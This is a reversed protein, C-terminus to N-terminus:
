DDFQATHAANAAQLTTVQLAAAASAVPDHYGRQQAGGREPSRVYAYRLKTPQESAFKRIAKEFVPLTMKLSPAYLKAWAVLNHYLEITPVFRGANFSDPIHPSAYSAPDGSTMEAFWSPLPNAAALYREVIPTIPFGYARWSSLDYTKLYWFFARQTDLDRQADDAAKFYDFAEADLAADADRKSKCYKDSAQFIALKRTMQQTQGDAGFADEHNTLCVTNRRDRQRLADAHKAEFTVYAADALFKLKDMNDKAAGAKLEECVAFLKSSSMVNFRTLLDDLGQGSMYYGENGGFLTQFIPLNESCQTLLHSKGAGPAGVFGLIVGIKELRQVSAAFWGMIYDFSAQDDGALIELIFTLLTQVGPHAAATANDLPETTELVLGNFTSLVKPNADREAQTALFDAVTKVPRDCRALWLDFIHKTKPEDDASKAPVTIITCASFILKTETNTRVICKSVIDTGDYFWREVITAKTLGQLSTFHRDLLAMAEPVQAVTM